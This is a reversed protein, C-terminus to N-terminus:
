SSNPTVAWSHPCHCPHPNPTLGLVPQSQPGWALTPVAGRALGLSSERPSVEASSTVRCWGPPIFGASAPQTKGTGLPMLPGPAPLSTGPVPLQRGRRGARWAGELDQDGRGLLDKWFLYSSNTDNKLFAILGQRPCGAGSSAPVLRPPATCGCPCIWLQIGPAVAPDGLDHCEGTSSPHICHGHGHSRSLVPVPISAGHLVPTSPPPPLQQSLRRGRVQLQIELSSWTQREWGMGAAPDLVQHWGPGWLDQSLLEGLARSKGLVGNEALIIGVAAIPSPCSSVLICPCSSLVRCSGAQQQRGDGGARVHWAPDLPTAM